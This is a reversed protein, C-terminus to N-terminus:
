FRSVAALSITDDSRDVGMSGTNPSAVLKWGSSIAPPPAGAAAARLEGSARVNSGRQARPPSPPGGRWALLMSADGCRPYFGGIQGIDVTRLRPMLELAFELWELWELLVGVHM